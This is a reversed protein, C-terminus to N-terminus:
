AVAPSRVSAKFYLSLEGAIEFMSVLEFGAQARETMARQIEEIDDAKVRLVVYNQTQM